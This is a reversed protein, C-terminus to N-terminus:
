TTGSRSVALGSSRMNDNTPYGCTSTQLSYRATEALPPLVAGVVDVRGRPALSVPNTGRQYSVSEPFVGGRSPERPGLHRPRQAMGRDAGARGRVGRRGRRAPHADAHRDGSIIPCARWSRYVDDVCRVAGAILRVAVEIRGGHSAAGGTSCPFWCWGCFLSPAVM